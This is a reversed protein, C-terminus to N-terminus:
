MSPPVNRNAHAHIRLRRPANPSRQCRGAWLKAVPAQNPPITGVPKPRHGVHTAVRGVGGRGGCSATRLSSSSFLSSLPTVIAEPPTSGLMWCTSSFFFPLYVHESAKAVTNKLVVRVWYRCHAAMPPPPPAHARHHTRHHTPGLPCHPGMEQAWPGAHVGKNRNMPMGTSAQAHENRGGVKQEDGKRRCEM